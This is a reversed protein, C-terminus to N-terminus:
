RRSRAARGGGRPGSAPSRRQQLAQRGSAAAAPRGGPVIGGVLHEGQQRRSRRDADRPSTLQRGSRPSGASSSPDSPRRASSPSRPATTRRRGRRHRGLRRLLDARTAPLLHTRALRPDDAVADLVALGAAPGEAFAVAVARNLEVVPSPARRALVAYLAAIRPWDTAEWTPAAAHVAAIAAQLRYPGPRRRHRQARALEAQGEAIRGRDWRARDQDELLM